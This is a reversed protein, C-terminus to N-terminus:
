YRTRKRLRARINPSQSDTNRKNVGKRNQIRQGALAFGSEIGRRPLPSRPLEFTAGYFLLLEEDASIDRLAEVHLLKHCFTDSEVMAVNAPASGYSGNIYTM